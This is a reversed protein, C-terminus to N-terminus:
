ACAVELRTRIRERVARAHDDDRPLQAAQAMMAPGRLEPPIERGRALLVVHFHRNEEGWVNVYVREAGAAETIAESIRAVVPGLSAQEDETLETIAEAHRRLWLVAWGPPGDLGRLSWHEDEYLPNRHPWAGDCFVCAGM